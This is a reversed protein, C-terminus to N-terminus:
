YSYDHMTVQKDVIYLAGRRSCIVNGSPSQEKALVLHNDQSTELYLWDGNVNQQTYARTIAEKVSASSMSRTLQVNLIRGKQKLRNRASGRPLFQSFRLLRCVSVNVSRGKSTKGRKKKKSDPLGDMSETPDFSPGKRKSTSSCSPFLRSLEKAEEKTPKVIKSCTAISKGFLDPDQPLFPIYM